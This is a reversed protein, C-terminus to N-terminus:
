RARGAVFQRHLREEKNAVGGTEVESDGSPPFMKESCGVGVVLTEPPLWLDRIRAGQERRKPVAVKLLRYRRPPPDHLDPM